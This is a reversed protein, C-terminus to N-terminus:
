IEFEHEINSIKSSESIPVPTETLRNVMQFVFRIKDKSANLTEGKAESSPTNICWDFTKTFYRVHIDSILM